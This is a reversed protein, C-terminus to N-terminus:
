HYYTTRSQHAPNRADYKESSAQDLIFAFVGDM